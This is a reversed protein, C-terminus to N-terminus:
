VWRAVRLANCFLHRGSKGSKRTESAYIRMPPVQWCYYAWLLCSIGSFKLQWFLVWWMRKTPHEIYSVCGPMWFLESVFFLMFWFCIKDYLDKPMADAICLIWQLNM